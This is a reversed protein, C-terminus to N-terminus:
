FRTTLTLLWDPSHGVVWAELGKDYGSLILLGILVFLGGLVRTSAQARQILRDRFMRTMSRAGLGIAALPLAAGLGFILMLLGVQTLDRGQSALMSAAGLTPGVCPSWSLGLLAGVAFQGPLNDFAFRALIRNGANGLWATSGAFGRQLPPLLLVLGLATMLGAAVLRVSDPNLGTAAGTAGIVTGVAAFSFAVGLALLVPGYRHVNAASACLIPILPVVCPSLTTLAGAVFGLLYTHFGFDM